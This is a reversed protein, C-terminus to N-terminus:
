SDQGRACGSLGIGFVCFEQEGAFNGWGSYGTKM